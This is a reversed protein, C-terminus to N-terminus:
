HSTREAIQVTWRQTGIRVLVEIPLAGAPVASAMFTRSGPVYRLWPPLRKGNARSVEVEQGSAAELLAAPLPFSFGKASAVIEEPVSALVVGPHQETATRVMSVTVQAGSGADGGFSVPLTLDLVSAPATAVPIVVPQPMVPSRSWTGALNTTSAYAADITINGTTTVRNAALVYNGSDGEGVIQIDGVTIIKGYGVNPNAFTAPNHTLAVQDGAFANDTLTAPALTTGDYTKSGGTAQVILTAPTINALATTGSNFTYNGADAGTVTVGGVSVAKGNGVNKDAFNANAFGVNLQDGAFANDSLTVSAATTADYIKNRATASVVLTAPTINATTNAATTITYNQADAGSAAIGSVTVAKSTGVNKNAFAAGSYSLSLQDGALPNDTLVVTAGATGDYIKNVGTTTVTLNAKTINGAASTSSNVTYDQADTGSIAINSVDIYKGVGANKDLFSDSSTVTLADGAIRNDALAVTAATTGDYVKTNGAATVTLSRPTISATLGTPQVLTYDSADAGSLTVTGTGIPKNTGADKTLFTGTLASVQVSDSGYVGTLVAAQTNLNAVATGDYVKDLAIVGAIHLTAPTINATSNANTSVAYNTALGGSTGNILTIGTVTVAKNNGVNKDAFTAGGTYLGTVTESGVFGSLGVNNNLLTAATTGDYVKNAVTVNLTLLKPTITGTSSAAPTVSYNSALGGNTGDALTIGGITVAKGVGANKDAFNATAASANVTQSGIFGTLTYGSLAAVTSGDYTKTAVTGAFTLPARNITSTTNNVDTVTYNGGGNGDTVTVGSASVAKSGTGANPDTFAFTGGSLSDQVGGNSVNHYLTGSVVAATGTASLTGDYTKTVNAADVTLSAPNITSTTNNVYTVTYNGGGNGDNVTVGSATVTKDGSGANANTFAYTGGSMTDTGFLQTGATAVASGAAALTGDYAKIVNSTDITLSAKTVTLTGSAYTIHYNGSTLGAPAITYTGVNRAGQSSGGYTVAGGLVSADQGNAFASYAVGNGGSYGLGNYVKSDANATVTLNAQGVTFATANGLAQAFTYNSGVTYGSGNIAYQGVDSGAVAPTTWTATGSLVSTTQGLKFGSISGSLSPNVAGYARSATNATYTLVAATVSYAAGNPDAALTYNSTLGGTYKVSYIGANMTNALASYTSTGNSINYVASGGSIVNGANDESDLLGSSITYGVTGTPADGYVQSPTGTITASVTLTAAAHSYVFGDGSETVSIPSYTSYTAGYHRFSSTLGGKVTHTGAVLDPTDSYVLWRDGTGVTLASAGSASNNIFNGANETSAVVNGAAAALRGGAHLTVDGVARLSLDGAATSVIGSVAIGASDYVQMGSGAGSAGLSAVQNGTNTLTVAGGANATLTGVNLLAASQTLSGTGGATLGVNAGGADIGAVVVDNADLYSIANGGSVVALTSVDNAANNLTVPGAATIALAPTQIPGTQAVGGGTSLTLSTTALANGITTLGTNVNVVNVTSGTLQLTNFSNGANTLNIIGSNAVSSAEATFSAVGAVSISTGAAQNIGTQVDAGTTGITPPSASVSINGAINNAANNLVIASGHVPAGSFTRNTRESIVTLNGADTRNGLTIVGAQRLEVTSTAPLTTTGGILNGAGDLVISSGTVTVNVAVQLSSGAAQSVAQGTATLVYDGGVLTNGITTATAGSNNVTVDGANVTTTVSLNGGITLPASQTVAGASTFSVNGAASLAGSVNVGGSSVVTLDKTIHSAGIDTAAAETVQVEGGNLVVTGFTNGVNNLTVDHAGANLTVPASGLNWAAAGLQSINSTNTLSVASPAGNIGVAGFANAGNALTIANGAAYLTLAGSTVSGGSQTIGGGGNLTLPTGPANLAGALDLTGTGSPTGITLSTLTGIPLWALEAATLNLGTIPTSGGVAINRSATFPQILLSGSGTIAAAFNVQDATLTINNANFSALNGFALTGTGANFTLASGAAPQVLVVNNFALGVGGLNGTATITGTNYVQPGNITFAPLVIGSASNVTLGTLTNQLEGLGSVSGGGLNLTLTQNSGVPGSFTLVGNNTTLTLNNNVAVTSDFSINGGNSNITSAGSVSVPTALDIAHSNTTLNVGVNINGGPAAATLKNFTSPATIFSVNGAGNADLSLTGTINQSQAATIGNMNISGAGTSNLSLGGSSSIRSLEDGSITMQGAVTQGTTYGGVAISRGNSATITMLGTGSSLTSNGQLDLDAANISLTNNSATLSVGNLLIFSGSGNNDADATFTVPANLTRSQNLTINDLAMYSENLDGVTTIAPLTLDYGSVTMATLPTVGGVVGGLVVNGNGAALTLAHAGNITSTAGSFTINGGGSNVAVDGSLITPGTVTVASNIATLNGGLTVGSNGSYSQTGVTNVAAASVTNGVALLSNLQTAAGVAGNFRLAGSGANAFLVHQGDVTGGFTIGIGNLAADSGLTLPQNYAQSGTTTIAATNVDVNGAPGTAISTLPTAGGVVGAFTTTGSDNVTLAHAGDVTGAFQVNVGTLVADAGLAVPGGYTQPGSTHISGGNLAIRSGSATAISTLATTGGVAAGLTTTGTGANLSLAEAGDVTGAFTIAANNTTVTIPGTALLVPSAFTIAGTAPGASNGVAGNVTIGGTATFTMPGAVALGTSPLSLTQGTVNLATLNSNFGIENLGTVTGTGGALANLTLNEAGTVPGGLSLTSGNSAVSIPGGVLALGGNFAIGGYGSISDGSLGGTTVLGTFTSGTDGNGLTVDGDFTVPGAAVIGSRAQVSSNFTTAGSGQLLLAAGTGSGLPAVSGVAGGFTVSGVGASVALNNNGDVTGVFVVPSDTSSVTAGAGITIPSNFTIAGAASSTVSGGITINSGNTATYTQPGAISVGGSPITPNLATVNLSTLNSGMRNLGILAATGSNLTLGFPGSVSGATQFTLPSNNSDITAPGNQLLVGADFSMNNYGSLNMGGVKGLTVLGTFVSAASGDGLTVTDSFVVPGTIALGNNAGLTTDFTAGGSALSLAASADTTKGLASVAGHFDVLGSGANVNLQFNAGSLTGNFNIPSNTSQVTLDAALTVPSNFTIAGAATSTVNTNLTIGAGSMTSATYTQPGAISMQPMSLATGTTLNLSASSANINSLGTVTGLASILTVNHNGITVGSTGGVVGVAFDGGNTFVLDGGSFGAALTDVNNSTNTLTANGTGILRLSPATIAGTQTIAGGASVTLAGGPSVTSAAFNIAGAADIAADSASVVSVTGFSSAPNSTLVIPNAAGATLTTTGPITWAAGQTIGAANNETVTANQGTLTLAGLQNSAQSLLIDFAGSNLTFPTASQVWASAQTINGAETISVATPTGGIALPGFVNAPNTLTIAGATPDLTTTGTTTWAGATGAAQTIGGNETISVAGGTVAMNGMLNTASTLTVANGNQAVLTVPVGTLVWPSGQTIADNETIAVSTPTGNITHISLDGLVNGYSSLDIAHARADLTVPASGVNWLSAQTLDSNDTILVSSLTGTGTTSVGLPGLQNALNALTITKGTPNAVILNTTGTTVWGTDGAGDWITSPGDMISANETITVNNAKVYLAGLANAPDALRIDGGGATAGSSDYAILKVIGTGTNWAGTGGVDTIAAAGATNKAYITVTSPVSPSGTSGTAGTVQLPGFVNNPNSLDISYSGSNLTTTGHVTWPTAGQTMGNLYNGDETVSVAGPTTSGNNVQTITLPGFYNGSQTLTIAQDNSTTLTVPYGVNGYNSWSSAQTIPANERITIAGAQGISLPGFVNDVEALTIGNSFNNFTTTGGGTMHVASGALQSLTYGYNHSSISLAGAITSNDLILGIWPNITVNNGTISVAGNWQDVQVLVIDNALGANLTATGGVYLYNAYDSILGNTTVSL